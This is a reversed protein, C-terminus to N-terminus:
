PTLPPTLPQDGTAQQTQTAQDDCIALWRNLVLELAAKDVPKSLYDDMGAAICNDKEDVMANATFAVIPLRPEAPLTARIARTAEYGDMVPMHCDMFVLDYQLRKVMALAEEGNAAIDVRCGSKELMRKVLRQNVANDEAVLVRADHRLQVPAVSHARPNAVATTADTKASPSAARAKTLADLLHIPRVVPKMLFVSFGQSLFMEGASRQSGSTLMVLSTSRLAPDSKISRGLELGDMQPMLFDIIAIDFPSGAAHAMRLKELAEQGSAVLECSIDWRRLQESLLRRNVELDDVVLVRCGMLNAEVNLAPTAHGVTAPLTFWFRSGKGAESEFGIQGGLLEILRCSIALGIGTGGFERTTSADAQSFQKFMLHQKDAAIGIGTDSVSCCLTDPSTPHPRLEVLVHGQRTFKIANGVLNMVVQRVRGPDGLISDPVGSDIQLVLEIGNKEAQPAL